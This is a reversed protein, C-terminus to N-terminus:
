HVGVLSWASVYVMGARFPSTQRELMLQLDSLNIPRTLDIVDGLTVKWADTVYSRWDSVEDDVQPPVTFLNTLILKKPPAFSQRISTELIGRVVEAIESGALKSAPGEWAGEGPKGDITVKATLCVHGMKKGVGVTVEPQFPMLPLVGGVSLIENIRRQIWDPLTLDDM